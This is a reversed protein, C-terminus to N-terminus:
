WNAVLGGSVPRVLLGWWGGAAAGLHADGRREPEASTNRTLDRRPKTLSLDDTPPALDVLPNPRKIPSEIPDHIEIIPKSDRLMEIKM